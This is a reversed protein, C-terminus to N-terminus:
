YRPTWYYLVPPDTRTAEVVARGDTPGVNGEVMQVDLGDHAVVLGVHTPTGADELDMFALAGVSPESSLRSTDSQTATILAPFDRSAPVADDNGSARAAWSQFIGCWAVDAGVWDNWKSRRFAPETYGVQSRAAAAFAAVDPRGYAIEVGSPASPNAYVAGGAFRQVCADELLGCRVDSVPEGLRGDEGGVRDYADAVDSATSGSGAAEARGTPDQTSVLGAVVALVVAAAAVVVLTWRRTSSM